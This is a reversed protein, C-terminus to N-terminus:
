IRNEKPPSGQIANDRKGKLSHIKEKRAKRKSSEEDSIAPNVLREAEDEDEM